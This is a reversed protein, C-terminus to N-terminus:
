PMQDSTSEIFNITPLINHSFCLLLLLSSYIMTLSLTSFIRSTSLIAFVTGLAYRDDTMEEQLPDFLYNSRIKVLEVKPIKKSLLAGPSTAAAEDPSINTAADTLATTPAISKVYTPQETDPNEVIDKEAAGTQRVPRKKTALNRRMSRKGEPAHTMRVSGRASRSLPTVAHFALAEGLLYFVVAFLEIRVM